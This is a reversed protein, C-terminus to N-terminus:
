GDSWNNDYHFMHNRVLNSIDKINENSDKLRKLVKECIKSGVIEHQYFSYSNPGRGEDILQTDKKGCDHFLVAIRVNLPYHLQSAAEVTNLTHKFVDEKHLGGQIVGKLTAIEPLIINMLGCDDLLQLGKKPSQGKILKYLEDKIRENSVSKINDKNDLMAKLTNEEVNFNLKSVFRTARMIRLGDEQFRENPNGIARIIKNKLDSIGNHMDLIEGTKANAALQNITFDRRKLDEELSRVFNVKGPHRGDNYDSESRFTTVEFSEGRFLVTVTGHKIGTPITKKFMRIVDEPTADTTFDLDENEINLLFDRVAGGVVYISYGNNFFISAFQKILENIPFVKM